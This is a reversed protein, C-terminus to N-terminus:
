QSCSESATDSPSSSSQFSPWSSLLCSFLLARSKQDAKSPSLLETRSVNNYDNTSLGLDALFNDTVANGINGRDLQLGFFQPITLAWVLYPVLFSPSSVMLCLWTLLYLDTKRVVAKEEAATWQANPDYRHRGEYSLHPALSDSLKDRGVRVSSIQSLSQEKSGKGISSPGREVQAFQQQTVQGDDLEKSAM